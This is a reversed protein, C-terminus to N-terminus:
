IGMVDGVVMIEADDGVMDKRRDPNLYVQQFSIQAELRYRDIHKQM